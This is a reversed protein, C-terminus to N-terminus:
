PWSDVVAIFMLRLPLMRYKLARQCIESSEGKGMRAEGGVGGMKELGKAVRM